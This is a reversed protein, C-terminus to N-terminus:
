ESPSGRHVGDAPPPRGLASVAVLVAAGEAEPPGDFVFIIGACGSCLKATTARHRISGPADWWTIRVKHRNKEM